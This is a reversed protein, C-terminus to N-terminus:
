RSDRRGEVIALLGVVSATAELAQRDRWMASRKHQLGIVLDLTAKGHKRVQENANTALKVAIYAEADADSM